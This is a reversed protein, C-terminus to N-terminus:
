VPSAAIVDRSHFPRLHSSNFIGREKDTNMHQLLFTDWHIAKKIIFPGEALPFFKKTESDIASSQKNTALLVLQGEKFTQQPPSQQHIRKRREVVKKMSKAALQRKEELSLELSVPLDVKISAEQQRNFMLEAPSFRTTCHQVANLWFEFQSLKHAWGVHSTACYARCLRGIEKMVREVPNAQPHRVSSFRHKIGWKSLQNTFKPSSFQTGRDALISKPHIVDRMFLEVKKLVTATNAKTMPFLRVYKTFIDLMVLVHKAGGRGAPLPGFIDISVIEGPESATVSRFDTHLPNNQQKSRQCNGCTRVFKRIAHSCKAFSYFKRILKETKDAGFHGFNDHYHQLLEPVLAQPIVFKWGDSEHVMLIEKVIAYKDNKMAPLKSVERKKNSIAQDDDQQKALNTLKKRFNLEAVDVRNVLVVRKEKVSLEIRQSSDPFRSLFDPFINETGKVHEIDYDFQQLYAIWRSIRETPPRCMKFFTLARHDTRILFKLGLLLNRWKSLSWVIALMELETISYNAEPGKVLRSAFALLHPQGHEMQYMVAALGTTSSDTQIIFPLDKIPHFLIPTNSCVNKLDIFAQAQEEKWKFSALKTVDHLPKAIESMKPIFKRLFNCIGLFSRVQKVNKPTPFQQISEIKKPDAEIGTATIVHGLFKIASKFFQSKHLSITCGADKIKKFVRGLLMMHDEVSVSPLLCDDLYVLMQTMLEPGFLQCMAKTFEAVAISLGFPLVDYVFVRNDLMFGLFKRDEQRVPVQWYGSNLDISSFVKMGQFQQIGEDINVPAEHEEFVQTNLKRADLCLRLSGDKKRLVLMASVHSSSVESIIGWDLMEQLKQRVGERYALPIPYQRVFFPAEDKMPVTVEYNKMLGPRKTFIVRYKELLQRFQHSEQPSLVEREMIGKMVEDIDDDIQKDDIGVVQCQKQEDTHTATPFSFSQQLGASRCMLVNTDLDLSIRERRLFDMGMIIESTLDEVIIFVAEFPKGQISFSLLVQDLAKRTKGKFAGQLSITRAPLKQIEQLSELESLVDKAMLCRQSGTDLLAQRLNGLFSLEVFPLKDLVVEEDDEELLEEESMVVNLNGAVLEEEEEKEDVILANTTNTTTSQRANNFQRSNNNNGWRNNTPKSTSDSSQTQAGNQQSQNGYSKRKSDDTEKLKNLARTLVYDEDTTEAYLELAERIARGAYRFHSALKHVFQRRSNGGNIYQWNAYLKMAYEAMDSGENNRYSGYDLSTVSENQREHNWYIEIFNSEFENYSTSSLGFCNSFHRAKGKLCARAYEIKKREDPIQSIKQRLETIFISPSEDDKGSFSPRTPDQIMATFTQATFRNVYPLFAQRDENWEPAQQQQFQDEVWVPFQQVPMAEARLEREAERALLQEMQQQLQLVREEQRENHQTLLRIQTAQRAITSDERMINPQHGAAGNDLSQGFAEIFARPSPSRRQNQTTSQPQRQRQRQPNPQNASQPWNYQVSARNIPTHAISPNTTPQREASGNHRNPPVDRRSPRPMSQSVNITPAVIPLRRENTRNPVTAETTPELSVAVSLPPDRSSTTPENARSTNLATTPRNAHQGNEQPVQRRPIAGSGGSRTLPPSRRM